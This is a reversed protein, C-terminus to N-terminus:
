RETDGEHLAPTELDLAVDAPTLGLARRIATLAPRPPVARSDFFRQLWPLVIGSREALVELGGRETVIPWLRQKLERTQRSVREPDSFLAAIAPDHDDALLLSQIDAVVEDREEADRTVDWDFFADIMGPQPRLAARLALGVFTEPLGGRRMREAIAELRQQDETTVTDDHDNTFM